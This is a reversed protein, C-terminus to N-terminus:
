KTYFDKCNYDLRCHYLLSLTERSVETILNKCGQCYVGCVHKESTGKLRELEEKLYKNEDELEDIRRKSWFIM